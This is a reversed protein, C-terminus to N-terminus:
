GGSGKYLALEAAATETYANYRRDTAVGPPMARSELDETDASGRDGPTPRPCCYRTWPQRSANSRTIQMDSLNRARPQTLLSCNFSIIFISCPLKGLFLGWVQKWKHSPRELKIVKTLTAMETTHLFDWYVIIYPLFLNLNLDNNFKDFMLYMEMFRTFVLYNLIFSKRAMLIM